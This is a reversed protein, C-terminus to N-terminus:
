YHITTTTCTLVMENCKKNEVHDEICFGFENLYPFSNEFHSAYFVISHLYLDVRCFVKLFYVNISYKEYIWNGPLIKSDLQKTFKFDVQTTSSRAPMLFGPLTIQM